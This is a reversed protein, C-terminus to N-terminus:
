RIATGRLGSVPQFQFQWGTVAEKGAEDAEDAEADKSQVVPTEPPTEAWAKRYVRDRPRMQGPGRSGMRQAAGM